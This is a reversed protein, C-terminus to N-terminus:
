KFLYDTNMTYFVAIKLESEQARLSTISIVLLPTVLLDM